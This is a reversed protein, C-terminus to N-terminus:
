RRRNKKSWTCKREKITQEFGTGNYHDHHHRIIEVANDSVIWKVIDPAVNVHNMMQIYEEPDLKGSKNQISQDIAVKGIDHLLSAWRLEEMEEETLELEEGICVSIKSVRQSHGATYKDKAELASILADMANLLLIRNGRTKEALKNELDRQYPSSRAESIEKSNKLSSRSSSM